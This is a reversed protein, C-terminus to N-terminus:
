LPKDNHQFQQRQSCSPADTESEQSSLGRGGGGGFQDEYYRCKLSKFREYIVYVTRTVTNLQKKMKTQIERQDQVTQHLQQNEASLEHCHQRMQELEFKLEENELALQSLSSQLERVVESNVITTTNNAAKNNSSRSRHLQTPSKVPTSSFFDDM